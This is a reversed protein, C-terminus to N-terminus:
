DTNLSNLTNQTSNSTSWSANSADPMSPNLNSTNQVEHTLWEVHELRWASFEDDNMKKYHVQKTVWAHCLVTLENKSTIDGPSCFKDPLPWSTIVVGFKATIADSFNTYNMHLPPINPNDIAEYLADLQWSWEVSISGDQLCDGVTYDELGNYLVECHGDVLLFFAAPHLEGCQFLHFNPTVRRQYPQESGYTMDEQITELTHRTDQFSSQAVKWKTLVKVARKEELGEMAEATVTMQQELTMANWAAQIETINSTLNAKSGDAPLAENQKTVEQSLYTNWHNPKHCTRDVHGHQMIAEFYWSAPHKGFEEKIQEAHKWIVEWIDNFTNALKMKQKMNAAQKRSREVPTQKPPKPRLVSSRARYTLTKKLEHVCSMTNQLVQWGVLGEKGKKLSSTSTEPPPLFLKKAEKKPSGHTSKTPSASRPPPTFIGKKFDSFRQAYKIESALTSTVDLQYIKNNWFNPEDNDDIEVPASQSPSLAPSQVQTAKPKSAKQSPFSIDNLVKARKTAAQVDSRIGDLGEASLIPFSQDQIEKPNTNGTLPDNCILLFAITDALCYTLHFVVPHAKDGAYKNIHHLVLSHSAFIMNKVGTKGKFLPYWRNHDCTISRATTSTLKSILKSRLAGASHKEIFTQMKTVELVIELTLLEVIVPFDEDGTTCPPRTTRPGTSTRDNNISVFWSTDSSM